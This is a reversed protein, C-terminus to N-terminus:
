LVAGVAACGPGNGRLYMQVKVRVILFHFKPAFFLNLLFFLRAYRAYAAEAVTEDAHLNRLDICVGVM